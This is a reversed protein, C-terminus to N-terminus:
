DDDGMFYELLGKGRNGVWNGTKEMGYAVAPEMVMSLAKRMGSVGIGATLMDVPDFFPTELGPERNVYGPADAPWSALGAGTGAGAVAPLKSKGSTPIEPMSDKMSPQRVASLGPPQASAPVNNRIGSIPSLPRGLYGEIFKRKEHDPQFVTRLVVDGRNGGSFPSVVDKGDNLYFMGKANNQFNRGPFNPLVRTEGSNLLNEIHRGVELPEMEGTAMRAQGGHTGVKVVNRTIAPERRAAREFVEPELTGAYMMKKSGARVARDYMEAFGKIAPAGEADDPLSAGAMIGLLGGFKKLDMESGGVDRINTPGSGHGGARLEEVDFQQEMNMEMAKLAPRVETKQKELAM